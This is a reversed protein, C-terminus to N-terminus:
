IVFTVGLAVPTVILALIPAVTAVVTLRGTYRESNLHVSSSEEFPILYDRRISGLRLRPSRSRKRSKRM